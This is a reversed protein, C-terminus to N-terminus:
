KLPTGANIDDEIGCEDTGRVIKFFGNDGWGENWSNAVLWYATGDEEGWGLIKIAHGGLFNDSTRKYVGTKYNLFDDYVEFDAEVPGNTMIETQIQDIESVSYADKGYHKDSKYDGSYSSICKGTCPPTPVTDGCPGYKGTTHHDCPALTYPQCTTEDGYLGGTVLGEDVWYEWASSPYGGDCGFGCSDCCTNLDEASIRIVTKTAICYRDSMSEVAGFAWCSGCTSQDRVEGITPCDPWNTRADFDTPIDRLTPIRKRPLSKVGRIAGLRKKIESLPTDPHFNRGAQWTTGLSNIHNIHEQSLPKFKKAAAVALVALLIVAVAKM